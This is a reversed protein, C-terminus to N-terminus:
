KCSLKAMEVSLGSLLFTAKKREGDSPDTVRLIVKQSELAQKTFIPVVEMDFFTVKNSTGLSFYKEQSAETDDFKYIVLVEEDSDGGLFDHLLVVNLGDSLCKWGLFITDGSDPTVSVHSNDEGSFEDKNETYIIESSAASACLSLALVLGHTLLNRM